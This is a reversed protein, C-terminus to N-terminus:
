LWYWGAEIPREIIRILKLAGAWFRLNPLSDMSAGSLFDDVQNPAYAPKPGQRM